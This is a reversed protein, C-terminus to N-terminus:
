RAVGRKNWEPSLKKILGSELGTVRDVPLGIWSSPDPQATLLTVDKGANLAAKILGNVRISTLQSKEPRGFFYCDSRLCWLPPASVVSKAMLFM